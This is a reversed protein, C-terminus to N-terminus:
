YIVIGIMLYLYDFRDILIGIPQIRGLSYLQIPHEGKQLAKESRAGATPRNMGGFPQGEGGPVKWVPPIQYGEPLSKRDAM